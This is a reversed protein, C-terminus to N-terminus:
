IQIPSPDRCSSSFSAPSHTQQKIGVTNGDLKKWHPKIIGVDDSNSPISLKELTPEQSSSWCCRSSSLSSMILTLLKKKNSNDHKRQQLKSPETWTTSHLSDSVLRFSTMQSNRCPRFRRVWAMQFYVNKPNYTKSISKVQLFAVSNHYM